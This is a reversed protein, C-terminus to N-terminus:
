GEHPYVQLAHDERRFPAKYVTGPFCLGINDSTWNTILCLLNPEQKMPAM